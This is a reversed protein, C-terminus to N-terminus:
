FQGGVLAHIIRKTATESDAGLVKIIRYASVWPIGSAASIGQAINRLDADHSEKDSFIGHVGQVAKLIASFQHESNEGLSANQLPGGLIPINSFVLNSLTRNWAENIKDEDQQGTFLQKIGETTLSVLMGFVLGSLGISVVKSVYRWVAQSKKWDPLHTLQNWLKYSQSAFPSFVGLMANAEAESMNLLSGGPQTRGVAASASLAAAEETAGKALQSRFVATWGITDMKYVIKKMLWFGANRFQGARFEFVSNYTKALAESRDVLRKDMEPALEKMKEAMKRGGFFSDGIASILKLPNAEGLYLALGSINNLASKINFGMAFSSMNAKLRLLGKDAEARATESEMVRALWNKIQKSAGPKAVDIAKILEQNALASNLRSAEEQLAIYKEQKEIAEQVVGLFDIRIPTQREQSLKVRAKTMGDKPRRKTGQQANADWAIEQDFKAGGSRRRMMPYYNDVKVLFKNQVRQSVEALREYDPEFVEAMVRDAFIKFKDPLAEIIQKIQDSGIKNGYMIADKSAENKSALYISVAENIRIPMEVEEVRKTNIGKVERVKAKFIKNNITLPDYFERQSINKKKDKNKTMLDNILETRRNIQRTANVFAAQIRRFINKSFAGKYSLEGGDLNDLLQQMEEFGALLHKKSEAKDAGGKLAEPEHLKELSGYLESVIAKVKAEESKDYAKKIRKGEDELLVIEELMHELEEITHSSKDPPITYDFKGMSNQIYELMAPSQAFLKERTRLGREQTSRGRVLDQIADIMAAQVYNVNKPVRKKIEKLVSQRYERAKRLTNKKELAQVLAGRTKALDKYGKLQAKLEDRRAILEKIRSDRGRLETEHKGQAKSMEKEFDKVRQAAELYAKSLKDFRQHIDKRNADVAKFESTLRRIELSVESYQTDIDEARSKSFSKNLIERLRTVREEFPLEKVRQREAEAKAEPTESLPERRELDDLRALEGLDGRALADIYMGRSPNNTLSTIAAKAQEETPWKAKTFVHLPGTLERNFGNMQTAQIEDEPPIGRKQYDLVMQSTERITKIVQEPDAKLRDLFATEFDKRTHRNDKPEDKVEFTEAISPDLDGFYENFDAPIEAELDNMARRMNLEDRAWEAFASAEIIAQDPIIDQNAKYESELNNLWVKLPERIDQKLQNYENQISTDGQRIRAGLEDLREFMARTENPMTYEPQYLEMEEKQPAFVGDIVEKVEPKIISKLERYVRQMFRAIREFITGLEKTPAKGEFFYKEFDATFKEETARDWARADYAKLLKAQDEGSLQRRIIHGLEHVVTSPDSAKSLSILAKGDELFIVGGRKGEFQHNVFAEQSLYARRWENLTLGRANAAVEMLAILSPIAEKIQPAAEELKASLETRADDNGRAVEDIHNPLEDPTLEIMERAGLFEIEARAIGELTDNELQELEALRQETQGITEMTAEKLGEKIKMRELNIRELKGLEKKVQPDSEFIANAQEIPVDLVVDHGQAKYENLLQRAQTVNEPLETIRSGEFKLSGVTNGEHDLAQFEGGETKTMLRGNLTPLRHGKAEIMQMAVLAGTGKPLIVKDDVQFADYNSKDEIANYEAESGKWVRESDTIDIHAPTVNKEKIKVGLAEFATRADESMSRFDFEGRKVAEAATQITRIDEGLQTRVAEPLNPEGRVISEAYDSAGQGYKKKVSDVFDRPDVNVHHALSEAADDPTRYLVTQGDKQAGAYFLEPGQEDSFVTPQADQKAYFAKDKQTSATEIMAKQVDPGAISAEAIQKTSLKIHEQVARAEGISHGLSAPGGLILGGLAGQLTADFVRQSAQKLDIRQMPDVTAKDIEQATAAAIVNMLETAGNIGGQEIAQGALGTGLGLAFTKLAGTTTSKELGKEIAQKLIASTAPQKIGSILNFQAMSLVGTTLGTVYSAAKATDHSVGSKILEGYTAGSQDMGQGIGLGLMSGTELGTKTANGIIEARPLLSAGFRTFAPLAGAGETVLGAGIGIALEPLHDSVSRAIPRLINWATRGTALLPNDMDQWLEYPLEVTNKELYDIKKLIEGLEKQTPDNQQALLLPDKGKIKDTLDRQKAYLKNLEEKQSRAQFEAMTAQVADKPTLSKKWYSNAVQPWNNMVEDISIGTKLSLNAASFLKQSGIEPGEADAEALKRLRSPDWLALPDIRATQDIAGSQSTDNIIGLLDADM